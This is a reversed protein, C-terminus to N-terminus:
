DDPGITMAGERDRASSVPPPRRRLELYIAKAAGVLPIVLLAGVVGGVSVGILAAMMTVPPSLKVANGILLPQILHNEINMYFIFVLACVVGTGPGKTFGLLVFPLGGFFGGIQPVLNWLAVNLAALPALPVGLALGAILNVVGALLAVSVSGAVYRGVVEYATQALRDAQARHDPPVLRRLGRLLREGDVLLTTALLLTAFALVAGGVLSRGARTLPGTDGALRDPLRRIGEDLRAPVDADRLRKGVVPLEGLDQVVTPLDASLNRAQRAAPPVLLTLILALGGFMCALVTAVAVGRRVNLRRVCLGVLPNLALAILTGVGVATATRPVSRILGTILTLGAVSALLVAISGPSLDVPRAQRGEAQLDPM